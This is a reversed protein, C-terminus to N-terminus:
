FCRLGMGSTKKKSGVDAKQQQRAASRTPTAHEARHGTTSARLSQAWVWVGVCGSGLCVVAVLRVYVWVRVRHRPARSGARHQRSAGVAPCPRATESTQSRPSASACERTRAGLPALGTLQVPLRKSVFSWCLCSMFGFSGPMDCVAMPLSSRAASSFIFVRYAIKNNEM